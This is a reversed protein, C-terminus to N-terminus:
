IMQQGWHGIFVLLEAESLQQDIGMIDDPTTDFYEEFIELMKPTKSIVTLLETAQEEGTRHEVMDPTEIDSM